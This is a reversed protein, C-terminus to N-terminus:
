VGLLTLVFDVAPLVLAAATLGRTRHIMLGQAGFMATLIFGAGRQDQQLEGTEKEIGLTARVRRAFRPAFERILLIAALVGILQIGFLNWVRLQYVFLAVYTLVLNLAAFIGVGITLDYGEMAVM